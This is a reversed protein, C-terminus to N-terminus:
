NSLGQQHRMPFALAQSGSSSPSPPPSIAGLCPGTPNPPDQISGSRKPQIIPSWIQDEHHETGKAQWGDPLPTPPLFPPLPPTLIFAFVAVCRRAHAPPLRHATTSAPTQVSPRHWGPLATGHGPTTCRTLEMCQLMLVACQMPVMCQLMLGTCQMLRTCWALVMCQM